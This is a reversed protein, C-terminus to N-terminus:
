SNLNYNSTAFYDRYEMLESHNNYFQNYNPNEKVRYIM